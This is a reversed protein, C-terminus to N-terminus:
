AKAAQVLALGAFIAILLGGLAFTAFMIKLLKGYSLRTKGTRAAEKILNLAPTSLKALKTEEAELAREGIKVLQRARQDFGYFLGSILVIAVGLALLFEQQNDKIAGACGALLAAMLIMYFHVTQMRQKSHLDFWAWAHDLADREVLSGTVPAAGGASLVRTIWTWLDM